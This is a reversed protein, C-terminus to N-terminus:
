LIIQLSTMYQLHVPAELNIELTYRIKADPAISQIDSVEEPNVKNGLIKSMYQTMADSYLANMDEYM